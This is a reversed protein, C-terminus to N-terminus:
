YDCTIGFATVALIVLNIVQCKRAYVVFDDFPLIDVKSPKMDPLPGLTMKLTDGEEIIKLAAVLPIVYNGGDKKAGM